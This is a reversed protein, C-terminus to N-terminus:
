SDFGPPTPLSPHVFAIAKFLEGMGPSPSTLRALAADVDKAVIEDQGRKLREARLEIGLARLFDGQTVPGVAHVGGLAATRALMEFDVHATIDAEGPDELVNAVKHARVAQLTDGFGTQSQGYDIFLAAGGDAAIRHVADRVPALLTRELLAGAPAPKLRTPLQEEIGSLPAPDLAFVLKGDVLGIKREHWGSETKIFQDIPLADIFENGLVILPGAPVSSFNRHGHIEAESDALAARQREVLVPSTEILHLKVAARFPPLVRAARLLDSMLTGRGPGFEVLHITEPGGMSRWVEACWIGLMEGFMQSVEPATVFDGAVGFPDRTIYYGHLPHGLALAMYRSVSIPGESEILARIEQELVNM